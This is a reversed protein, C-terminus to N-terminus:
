RKLFEIVQTTSVKLRSRWTCFYTVSFNWVSASVAGLVGSILWPFNLSLFTTAISFSIVAGYSCVLFYKILGGWLHLGRLRLDSYTLLNNLLFNNIIAIITGIIQANAFQMSLGSYLTILVLLHVCLGVLGVLLYSVFRRPLINLIKRHILLVLFEWMVRIDLKSEGAGRKRFDIKIESINTNNPFLSILDLLIKFGDPSIDPAYRIFDDRRLLFFGSMADNIRGRTILTSVGNAIRSGLYRASRLADENMAVSTDAIFRGGVAIAAGDQILTKFLQLIYKPDHQLDSDMVCVYPHKAYPLGDLIAGSLGRKGTRLVATINENAAVLSRIVDPTADTSDDVFVVEWDISSLAGQLEAYLVQINDAENYTPIILSISTM